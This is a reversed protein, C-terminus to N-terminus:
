TYKTFISGGKDNNGGCFIRGDWTGSTALGMVMFATASSSGCCGGTPMPAVM